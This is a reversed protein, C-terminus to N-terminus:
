NNNCCIQHGAMQVLTMDSPAMVYGWVSLHRLKATDFPKSSKEQRWPQIKRLYVQQSVEAACFLTGYYGCNALNPHAALKGRLFTLLRSMRATDQDERALVISRGM